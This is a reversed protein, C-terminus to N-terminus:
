RQKQEKLRRLMQSDSLASYTGIDYPNLDVRCLEREREDLGLIIEGEGSEKACRIVAACFTQMVSIARAALAERDRRYADAQAVPIQYGDILVTELNGKIVKEDEAYESASIKINPM